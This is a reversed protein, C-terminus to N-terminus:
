TVRWSGREPRSGEGRGQLQSRLTGFDCMAMSANVLSKEGCVRTDCPIQLPVDAQFCDQGGERGLMQLFCVGFIAYMPSRHPM